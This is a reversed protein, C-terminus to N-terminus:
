FGTGSSFNFQRIKLAPATYAGPGWDSLMTKEDASIQEVNRLAEVISQTFRLNKLPRAVKGKEILFTGDRTMGTLVLEIPEVLNTYHFRTVLIGRETSAIMEDRTANGPCLILNLPFPGETSPQPLAHGTTETKLRRATVRDHVVAKAVGDEVLTVPRRPLGEFDFPMGRQQPHFADDKITINQGFLKQGLKGAMFTRGEAFGLGGFGFWAMFQLLDAVAAPELVVVYRGPEISQAKRSAQAKEIAVSALADVDIERFDRSSAEAWGSSDDSQASISFTASTDKHSVVLGTTNGIGVASWGSSCVGAARLGAEKCAAVARLVAEARVQAGVEATSAEYAPNPQVAGRSPLPMVDPSERQYEILDRATAFARALGESGADNTTVRATCKGKLVRVTIALDRRSVNQSISSESFRTTASESAGVIVEAESGDAHELAERTVSEIEAQPDKM